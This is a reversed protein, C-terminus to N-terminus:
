RRSAGWWVAAAVAAWAPAWTDAFRLLAAAAPWRARLADALVLVGYALATAAFAALPGRLPRGRGRLVLLAVALAVVLATMVLFASFGVPLAGTGSM